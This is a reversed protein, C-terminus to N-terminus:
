LSEDWDITHLTKVVESLIKDIIETKLNLIDCLREDIDPLILRDPAFRYLHSLFDALSIVAPFIRYKEYAGSINHHFVIAQTLLPPFHWKEVIWGNIIDHSIGMVKKEAEFDTINERKKIAKIKEDIEPFYNKLIVKGMDHLLGAATLEDAEKIDLVKAIVAAITACDCAHNWMDRIEENIEGFVLTSILLGKIANLGLLVVAHKISSIRNPFGYFPSNVLKLVKASLTIDKGIIESVKSLDADKKDIIEWVEHIVKPLSPLKEIVQEKLE